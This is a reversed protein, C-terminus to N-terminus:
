LYGEYIIDEGIRFFNAKKLRISDKIFDIGKGQYFSPSQKGGIIKPSISLVMKDVLKDELLSTLLLGGGEALVSSIGNEGLWLLVDKLPVMSSSSLIGIIHAGKKQLAEAKKQPFPNLTFILIDGQSLTQFIRANLPFRLQSDIIIRTIKKSAWNPHRVTLLPNDKILTNIGVMIADYEGRLLHVYERTLPSSIWQSEHKKTAIKGDLSIAAKATVFPTKETIFKIYTENLRKNKHELLGISVDVGAEKMKKIGKSYVLPNPDLASVVLRKFKAQLLHNVCPPTRGWHVCPELTTYITSNQANSGAMNLALIEAHPRGPREHYGYGLISDNKVIVAGVYPNPSAWGKAKEALAYAMQLYAIDRLNNM